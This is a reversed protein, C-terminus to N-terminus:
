KVSKALALLEEALKTGAESDSLGALMRSLENVRESDAVASVASKHFEDSTKEIGCTNCKKM